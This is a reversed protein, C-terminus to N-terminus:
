HCAASGVVRLSVYQLGLKSCLVAAESKSSEQGEEEEVEEAGGGERERKKKNSKSNKKKESKKRSSAKDDDQKKAYAFAGLARLRALIDSTSHQWMAVQSEAEAIIACWWMDGCGNNVM